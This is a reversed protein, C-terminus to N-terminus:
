EEAVRKLGNKIFITAETGISSPLHNDRQAGEVFNHQGSLTRSSSTLHAPHAANIEHNHICVCVCVSTFDVSLHALTGLSGWGWPAPRLTSGPAKGKREKQRGELRQGGVGPM